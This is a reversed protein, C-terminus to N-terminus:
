MLKLEYELLRDYEDFQEITKHVINRLRTTNLDDCFILNWKKNLLKWLAQKQKDRVDLKYRCAAIAMMLCACALHDRYVKVVFPSWFLDSLIIWALNSVLKFDDESTADVFLKITKLYHVLYRHSSINYKSNKVIDTEASDPFFEDFNVEEEEEKNQYLHGLINFDAPAVNQANARLLDGPTMESNDKYNIQFELNFTVIKLALVISDELKNLSQKDLFYNPGHVLSAMAICIDSNRVPKEYYYSSLKICAAAFTYLDFQSIDDQTRFFRHYLYAALGILEDGIKLKVGTEFICMVKLPVTDAMEIKNSGEM